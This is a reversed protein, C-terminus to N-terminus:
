RAPVARAISVLKSLSLEDVATKSSVYPKIPEKGVLQRVGDSEILQVRQNYNKLVNQTVKVGLKQSAEGYTSIQYSYHQRSFLKARPEPRTGGRNMPGGRPRFTSGLVDVYAFLSLFDDARTSDKEFQPYGLNCAYIFVESLSKRQSIEALIVRFDPENSLIDKNLADIAFSEIGKDFYLELIPRSFKPALLPVTGIIPKSNHLTEIEDIVQEQMKLYQQLRTASLRGPKNTDGGPPPDKLMGSKVSPLLVVRHSASYLHHALTRIGKVTPFKDLRLDFITLNFAGAIFKSQIEKHLLLTGAELADITATNIIRPLENVIPQSAGAMPSSLSRSPSEFSTGDPLTITKRITGLEDDRSLERAALHGAM